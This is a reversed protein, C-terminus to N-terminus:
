GLLDVTEPIIGAWTNHAASRSISTWALVLLLPLDVFLFMLGIYSLLTQTSSHYQSTGSTLWVIPRPGKRMKKGYDVWMVCTSNLLQLGSIRHIELYWDALGLTWRIAKTAGRPRVLCAQLQHQVTPQKTETSFTTQKTYTILWWSSIWIPTMGRGIKSKQKAFCDHSPPNFNMFTQDMVLDRNCVEHSAGGPAPFTRKFSVFSEQHHHCRLKTLCSALRTTLGQETLSMQGVFIPPIFKSRALVWTSGKWLFVSFVGSVKIKTNSKNGRPEWM